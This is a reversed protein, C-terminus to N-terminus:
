MDCIEIDELIEILKNLLIIHKIKIKYIIDRSGCKITPVEELKNKIKYSRYLFFIILRINKTKSLIDNKTNIKYNLLDFIIESYIINKYSSGDYRKCENSFSIKKRENKLNLCKM